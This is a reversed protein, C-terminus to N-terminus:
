QKGKLRTIYIQDWQEHQARFAILGKPGCAIDHNMKTNTRIQRSQRSALDVIYIPNYELEDDRVYVLGSGDAIWAPGQEIDPVVNTAVIQQELHLGQDGDSGDAAVVALSWKKLEGETNYNTYFAIKKGDPSWSPRLDDYQWKSLQRMSQLPNKIDDIVYIDHNETSGYIMALKNGDPSWRPYLYPKDGKTLQIVSLNDPDLLYVDGKGSRGSVFAIQNSTPSWDALGDKEKNDTLRQVGGGLLQSYIDYNGEGGNSMFVLRKADHAWSVGSNYSPDEAIGPLFLQMQKSDKETGSLQFYITQLTTGGAQAIEIERKDGRSREFAIMDGGPSWAPNSDNRGAEFASLPRVFEPEVMEIQKKNDTAQVTVAMPVASAVPMSVSDMEEAHVPMSFCLAFLCPLQFYRLYARM